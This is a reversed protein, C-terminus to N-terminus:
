KKSKSRKGEGASCLFFSLNQNIDIYYNIVRDLQMTSTYHTVKGQHSRGEGEEKYM